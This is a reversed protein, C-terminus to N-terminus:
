KIKFLLTSKHKWLNFYTGDFKGIDLTKLVKTQTM